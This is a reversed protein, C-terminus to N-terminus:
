FIILLYDINIIKGFLLIFDYFINVIIWIWNILKFGKMFNCGIVFVKFIIWYFICNYEIYFVLDFYFGNLGYWYLVYSVCM